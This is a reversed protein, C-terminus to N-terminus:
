KDKCGNFHRRAQFVFRPAWDIVSGASWAQNELPERAPQSAKIRAPKAQKWFGGDPGPVPFKM